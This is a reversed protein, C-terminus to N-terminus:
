SEAPKKSNKEGPSVGLMTAHRNQPAGHTGSSTLSLNFDRVDSMPGRSKPKVIPM